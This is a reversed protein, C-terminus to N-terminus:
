LADGLIPDVEPRVSRDLRDVPCEELVAMRDEEDLRFLDALLQHIVVLLEGVVEGFAGPARSPIRVFPKRHRNKVSTTLEFMMSLSGNTFQSTSASSCGGNSKRHSPEFGSRAGIERKAPSKLFFLIM